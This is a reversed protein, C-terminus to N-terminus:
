CRQEFRRMLAVIDQDVANPLRPFAKFKSKNSMMHCYFNWLGRDILVSVGPIGGLEDVLSKALVLYRQSATGSSLGDNSACLSCATNYKPHYAHILDAEAGQAEEKSSYLRISVSDCEQFARCRNPHGRDNMFVRRYAESAYGIYLPESGLMAAYVSPSLSEDFEARTINIKRILAM